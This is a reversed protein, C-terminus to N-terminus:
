AAESIKRPPDIQSAIESNQVAEETKETFNFKFYMEVLEMVEQQHNQRLYIVLNRKIPGMLYFTAELVVGEGKTENLVVCISVLHIYRVWFEPTICFHRTWGKYSAVTVCPMPLVPPPLAPIEGSLLSAPQVQIRGQTRQHIGKFCGFFRPM